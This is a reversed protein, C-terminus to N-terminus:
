QEPRQDVIGAAQLQRNINELEEGARLAAASYSSFLYNLMNYISSSFEPPLFTGEMPEQELTIKESLAGGGSFSLDFVVPKECEVMRKITWTRKRCFEISKAIQKARQQLVDMPVSVSNKEM